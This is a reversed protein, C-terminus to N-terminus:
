ARYLRPIISSSRSFVQLSNARTRLSELSPRPLRLTPSQPCWPQLQHVCFFVCLILALLHSASISTTLKVARGRRYTIARQQREALVRYLRSNELWSSEGAARGGGGGGEKVALPLLPLVAARKIKSFTSHGLQCFFFFLQQPRLAYECSSLLHQTKWQPAALKGPRGTPHHCHYQLNTHFGSNHFQKKQRRRVCNSARSGDLSAWHNRSNIRKQM